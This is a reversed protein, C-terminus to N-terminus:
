KLFCSQALPKGSSEDFGVTGVVVYLEGLGENVLRAALTDVAQQAATRFTGRLALDEIPYGTLTMEPFVVARAGSQQARATYQVVKAVNNDINGVCTDVQVLALRLFSM